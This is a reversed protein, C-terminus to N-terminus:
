LIGGIEGAGCCGDDQHDRHKRAKAALIAEPEEIEHTRHTTAARSSAHMSWNMPKTPPGTKRRRQQMDALVLM